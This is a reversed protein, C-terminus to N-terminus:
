GHSSTVQADEPADSPTPNLPSAAPSKASRQEQAGNHNVEVGSAAEQEDALAKAYGPYPHVEHAAIFERSATPMRAIDSDIGVDVDAAIDSKEQTSNDVEAGINASLGDENASPNAKADAETEVSVAEGISPLVSGDRDAFQEEDDEVRAEPADAAAYESGYESEYEPNGEITEPTNEPATLAPTASEASASWEAEQKKQREQQEMSRMEEDMQFKFENSARRLEAMVKGIQRAIEPLKKPGFLVLALVLIVTYDAFHM